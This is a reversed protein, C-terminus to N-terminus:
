LNASTTDFYNVTGLTSQDGILSLIKSQRWPTVGTIDKYTESAGAPLASIPSMNNPPAKVGVGLSLLSGNPTYYGTPPGAPFIPSNPLHPSTYADNYTMTGPVGTAFQLPSFTGITAPSGLTVLGSIPLTSFPSIINNISMDSLNTMPMNVLDNIAMTSLSTMPMNTITGPIPPYTISNVPTIQSSNQTNQEYYALLNATQNIPM